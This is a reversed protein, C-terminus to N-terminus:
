LPTAHIVDLHSAPNCIVIEDSTLNTGKLADVGHLQAWINICYGLFIHVGGCYNNTLSSFSTNTFDAMRLNGKVKLEICFAHGTYGATQTMRYLGAYRLRNKKLETTWIPSSDHLDQTCSINGCHWLTKGAQLVSCNNKFLLSIQNVVQNPDVGANAMLTPLGVSAIDGLEHKYVAECVLRCFDRLVDRSYKEYQEFWAKCLNKVVAKSGVSMSYTRNYNAAGSTLKWKSFSVAKPNVSVGSVIVETKDFFAIVNLTQTLDDLAERLKVFRSCKFLGLFCTQPVNLQELEDVVTNRIVKLFWEQEKHWVTMKEV